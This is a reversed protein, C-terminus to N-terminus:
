EVAGANKLMEVIEAHGGDAANMLATNGWDNQANVDAGANILMEVIETYGYKSAVMLATWGYDSQLNVDAGASILLEAMETYGRAAAAMLATGGYDGQLNVDAGAELLREVEALDGDRAAQLLEDGTSANEDESSLGMGNRLEELYISENEKIYPDFYAGYVWGYQFGEVGDTIVVYYWPSSKDNIEESYDTKAITNIITGRIFTNTRIQGETIENYLHINILESDLSPATTFRVNENFVYVNKDVTVAIDQIVANDGNQKESGLTFFKIGTILLENSFEVNNSRFDIESETESEDLNIFQNMYESSNYNSLYIRSNEIRYNGQISVGGQYTGIKFVDDSYFILLAYQNVTSDMIWKTSLLKEKSLNEDEINYTIERNRWSYGDYESERYTSMMKDESPYTINEPEVELIDEELTVELEETTIEQISTSSDDKTCSVLLLLTFGLILRITKEM